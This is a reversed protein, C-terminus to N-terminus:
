RLPRTDVDLPVGTSDSVASTAGAPDTTAPDLIVAHVAGPAPAGVVAPRIRNALDIDLPTEAVVRLFNGTLGSWQLGGPVPQAHEWLVNMVRGAFRRQFMAELNAGLRHMRESRLAAVHAPVQNNMTAAATGPRRSFRFVHLRAFGMARVTRLSTEFDDDTEGPFAVMIDTTIAMDSHAARAQDLLAAFKAVTTRRAMRRLTADCGSQLPLHLHPLLRPNTFLEFFASDIDWPELSSLRVRPLSTESLIRRVLHTLGHRDGRDHGFSGLHVGSLVAEQVGSRTLEQIEHIVESEPRSRGPGRALTVVCFTCRNNCGDQVKVFARTRGTGAPSRRPGHHPSRVSTQALIGRERLIDLLRDKDMNGVIIDAGASRVAEAELEADCGTVVITAAPHSRRLHRIAHRSKAAATATVTCTNVVCLDATDNPGAIQHGLRVMARAFSETEGINLRCGLTELRIRIDHRGGVNDGLEADFDPSPTQRARTLNHRPIRTGGPALTGKTQSKVNGRKSDCPNSAHSTLRLTASGRGRPFAPLLPYSIPFPSYTRSTDTRDQKERRVGLGRADSQGERSDKRRAGQM